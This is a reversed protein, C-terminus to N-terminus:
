ASKRRLREAEEMARRVVGRAREVREEWDAPLEGCEAPLVEMERWRAAERQRDTDSLITDLQPRTPTM